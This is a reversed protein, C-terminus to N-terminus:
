EALLLPPDLIELLPTRFYNPACVTGRIYPWWAEKQDLFQGFDYMPSAFPPNRQVGPDEELDAVSCLGELDFWGSSIGKQKM